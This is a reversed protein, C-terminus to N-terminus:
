VAYGMHVVHEECLMAFPTESTTSPPTLPSATSALSLSRDRGGIHMATPATPLDFHFGDSSSGSSSTVITGNMRQNTNVETAVQINRRWDSPRQLPSPLTPSTPSLEAFDTSRHRRRLSDLEFTEANGFGFTTESPPPSPIHHGVQRVNLLMRSCTVCLTATMLPLAVSKLHLPALAFTIMNGIGLGLSLAFYVLGDRHLIDVLPGHIAERQHQIVKVLTLIFLVLDFGIVPLWFTWFLPAPGEIVICGIKLDADVLFDQGNSIFCLLIGTAYLCGLLLVILTALLLKNAGWLIWTRTMLVIQVVALSGLSSYEQFMYLIKCVPLSPVALFGYLTVAYEAPVLYRNLCFLIKGIEIRDCSWMYHIEEDLTLAHDYLIFALSGIYAQNLILASRVIDEFDLPNLSSAM